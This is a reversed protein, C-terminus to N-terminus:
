TIKSMNKMSLKNRIDTEDNRKVNKSNDYDIRIIIEAFLFFIIFLCVISVCTIKLIFYEEYNIIFNILFGLFIFSEVIEGIFELHM